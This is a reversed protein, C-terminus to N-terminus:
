HWDKIVKDPFVATKTGKHLYEVVGVLEKSLDINIPWSSPLSISYRITYAKLKLKLKECYLYADDFEQEHAFEGSQGRRFAGLREQLQLVTYKEDKDNDEITVLDNRMNVSFPKSIDIDTNEEVWNADFKPSFSIIRAPFRMNMDITINKVFSNGQDDQWDEDSEERFILLDIKNRVAKTKAGSQYGTKTAFVARLDPLDRIKGILADIKEISVRSQYDKCEIVTKYTVGALEYEWYLDFEREIGCNDKLKKNTEIKINKQKILDESDLLAQQLNKVFQEYERGDSVM